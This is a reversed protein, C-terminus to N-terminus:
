RGSAPARLSAGALPLVGEGASPHVHEGADVPEKRAPEVVVRHEGADRHGVLDHGLHGPMQRPQSEEGVRASGAAGDAPADRPRPRGDHSTAGGSQGGGPCERDGVDRGSIRSCSSRSPPRSTSSAGSSCPSGSPADAGAPRARGAAAGAHQPEVVVLQPPDQHRHLLVGLTRPHKQDLAPRHEEGEPPCAETSGKSFLSMGPTKEPRAALSRSRRRRSRTPSAGPAPPGRSAAPPAGASARARPPAHGRQHEVHAGRRGRADTRAPSGSRAWPRVQTCPSEKRSQRRHAAAPPNRRPPPSGGPTAPTRAAAGPRPGRRRGARAPSRREPPPAPRGFTPARRRPPPRRREGRFPGALRDVGPPAGSLSASALASRHALGEETGALVHRQLVDLVGDGLAVAVHLADLAVGAEAGAEALPLAAEGRHGLRQVGCPPMAGAATSGKVGRGGSWGTSSDSRALTGTASAARVSPLRAGTARSRTGRAGDRRGRYRLSARTTMTPPPIM